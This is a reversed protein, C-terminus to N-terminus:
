GAARNSACRCGCGGHGHGHGDQHEEEEEAAPPPLPAGSLVAAIAAMPDTESTLIVKVGREAAKRIFGEGASGSILIDIGDIPHASGCPHEHMSMEKPLDLRGTEVAQGDAAEFIMFRRAKGAHATITRFNQSTVGIKMEFGKIRPSRPRAQSFGGALFHNHRGGHLTM